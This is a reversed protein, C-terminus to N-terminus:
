LGRVKQIQEAHDVLQAYIETTEATAHRLQDRAFFRDRTAEYTKVGFRHRLGHLGVPCGARDAYRRWIKQLWRTSVPFLPEDDGKGESAIKVAAKLAKVSEESFRVPLEPYRPGSRKVVTGDKKVVKSRKKCTPVFAVQGEWDFHRPCILTIELCRLGLKSAITIMAWVQRNKRKAATLIRSLEDDRVYKPLGSM